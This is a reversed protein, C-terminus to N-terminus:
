FEYFGNTIIGTKFEDLLDGSSNYRSITSRSVYDGADALYIDGNRSDLGLSYLNRNKRTILRELRSNPIAIFRFVDNSLLYGVNREPDWKLGFCPSTLPQTNEIKKLIPDFLNLSPLIADKGNSTFWLKNENDKILFVPEEGVAVSDQLTLNSINLSYLKHKTKNTIWVKDNVICMHEGWGAMPIQKQIKMEKANLVFLGNDYMTSVLVLDNSLKLAYRPFPITAETEKKFSLDTLVVKSSNNVCFLYHSDLRIVSQLVNGIPTGNKQKYVELAISKEQTNYVSITGEGWGFNGENLILLDHNSQEFPKALEPTDTCASFIIFISIVGLIRM